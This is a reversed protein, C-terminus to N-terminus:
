IRLLIESCFFTAEKTVVVHKLVDHRHEVGLKVLLVSALYMVEIGNYQFVLSFVYHEDTRVGVEGLSWGHSLMQQASAIPM